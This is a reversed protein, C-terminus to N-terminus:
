LRAYKAEKKVHRLEPKLSSETVLDVKRKFTRELLFKVDMYDDFKTKRFKVLIDIDSKPHQRKHVFSGFVGIRVVGLKALEERRSELEALIKISSLSKGTNKLSKAKM